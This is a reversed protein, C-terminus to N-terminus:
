NEKKESFLQKLESPPIGYKDSYIKLAQNLKEPDGEIKSLGEAIKSFVDSNKFNRIIEGMSLEPFKEVPSTVNKTNANVESLDARMWNLSEKMETKESFYVDLKKNIGEYYQAANPEKMASLLDPRILFEDHKNKNSVYAKSVLDRLGTTFTPYDSGTSVVKLAATFDNDTTRTQGLGTRAYVFAFEIIKSQFLSYESASIGIKDMANITEQDNADEAILSSFKNNITEDTSGGFFADLSEVEARLRKIITAARGGIFTLVKGDSKEAIEDLAKARILMDSTNTRADQMKTFVSEQLRTANAVNSKYNDVSQTETVESASFTKNLMASYFDGSETLTLEIRRPASDKDITVSGYFNEETLNLKNTKDSIDQLHTNMVKLVKEKTKEPINTNNKIQQIREKTANVSGMGTLYESIDGGDNSSMLVSIADILPQDEPKASNELVAKMRVLETNSATSLKEIDATTLQSSNLLEAKNYNEAAEKDELNTTFQALLQRESLPMGRIEDDTYKRKGEIIPLINETINKPVELGLGKALNILDTLKGADMGPETLAEISFLKESEKTKKLKEINEGRTNIAEMQEQSYDSKNLELNAKFAAFDEPTTIKSIDIKEYKRKVPDFQLDEKPMGPGQEEGMQQDFVGTEIQEIVSMVKEDSVNQLGEWTGRMAEIRSADTTKGELRSQALAVFLEDQTKEDFITDNTIGLREFTGNNKLELMTGGVFQYKGAPTSGLDNLAAFTGKPMNDKSYAHYSGRGRGTQFKIVDGVSMESVKTKYFPSSPNNQNNNLLADVGGSGSEVNTLTPIEITGTGMMSRDELITSSIIGSELGDTLYKTLEMASGGGKAMTYLRQFANTNEGLSLNSALLAANAADRYEKDQKEAAEIKALREKRFAKDEKAQEKALAKAEAKEQAATDMWSKAVINAAKAFGEGFADKKQVYEGRAVRGRVEKRYSM